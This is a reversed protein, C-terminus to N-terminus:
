PQQGSSPASPAAAQTQNSLPATASPAAPASSAATATATAGPAPPPEGNPLRGNSTFGGGGGGATRAIIRIAYSVDQDRCAAPADPSMTLYINFPAGEQGPLPGASPDATSLISGSFDSAACPRSEPPILAPNTVDLVEVTSQPDITIRFAGTNRLKGQAVVFTEGAKLYVPRGHLLSNDAGFDFSIDGVAAQGSVKTSNSWALVGGLVGAGVLSFVMGAGFFGRSGYGQGMTGRM